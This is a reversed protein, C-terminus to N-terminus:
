ESVYCQPINRAAHLIYEFPIPNVVVIDLVHIGRQKIQLHMTRGGEKKGAGRKEDENINSDLIYAIAAAAAAAITKVM